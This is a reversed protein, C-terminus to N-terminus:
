LFYFLVDWVSNTQIYNKITKYNIVKLSDIYRYTNQLFLSLSKVVSELSM